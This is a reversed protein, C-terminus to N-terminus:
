SLLLVKASKVNVHFIRAKARLAHSFVLRKILKVVDTLSRVYQVHEM